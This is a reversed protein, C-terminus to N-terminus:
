RSWLGVGAARARDEAAQYPEIKGHSWRHDAKSLGEEILRKNLLTGDPLEAHALLRGFRGRHRHPELYLTIARGETLTRTRAAAEIAYPEAERGDPKALEPTDVGWLRVRTIQEGRDPVALDFTDGDIVRVVRYSQGHYRRWDDGAAAGDVQRDLVALVATALLALLVIGLRRRTLSRGFAPPPLRPLPNPGRRTM